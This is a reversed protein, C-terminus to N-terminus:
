TVAYYCVAPGFLTSRNYVLIRIMNLTMGQALLTNVRITASKEDSFENGSTAVYSWQNGGLPVEKETLYRTLNM